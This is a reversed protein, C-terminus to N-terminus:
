ETYIHLNAEDTMDRKVLYRIKFDTFKALRKETNKMSTVYARFAVQKNGGYQFQKKAFDAPIDVLISNEDTDNEYDLKTPYIVLKGDDIALYGSSYIPGFNDYRGENLAHLTLTCIPANEYEVKCHERSNMNEGSCGTALTIVSLVIFKNLYQHM